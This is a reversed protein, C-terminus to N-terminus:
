NHSPFILKIKHDSCIKLIDSIFKDEDQYHSTYKEFGSSLRSFQCMGLDTSDSVTVSIDNKSLNRLASYSSRVWGYTLLVDSM